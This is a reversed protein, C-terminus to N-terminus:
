FGGYYFAYLTLPLGIGFGALGGGYLVRGLPGYDSFGDTLGLCILGFGICGLGIGFIRTWSQLVCYVGAAGLLVGFGTVM